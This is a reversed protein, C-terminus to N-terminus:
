GAKKKRILKVEYNELNGILTIYVFKSNDEKYLIEDDSEENKRKRKFLKNAAINGIMKWPVAIVYDMDMATTMKQSGSIEMFGLSSNITMKPITITGKDISIENRLTDFLVRNLNKDEFYNELVKLPAFNEIKGDTLVMKVSLKSDDIKPTLDPHLHITGSIEGNFFGHLNDSVVYDQGFNDFKIMFKDLDLHSIAIEPKFFIKEKNQADLKGSMKITGEATQFSLDKLDIIKKSNTEFQLNLSNLLHHHYNLSEIEISSNLEYLPLDFISFGSDHDIKPVESSDNKSPPNYNIIEDIDLYNSKLTLSNLKSNTHNHWFHQFNLNFDSKGIKGSFNDIIIYEKNIKLKMKFNEFKLPHIKMKGTFNSLDFDISEFHGDNFHINSKGHFLLNDIEEHRYEKPIMNEGRYTLLNEFILKRSNMDFEVIIDKNLEIDFFQNYNRLNGNFHFDSQDLVGKFDIIRFDKDDIIIDAYFDHITHPYHKFKAYFNRVFFEGKPLYKFTRLEQGTANFKLNLKFNDITEDIEEVGQKSALEKINIKISEMNLDCTVPTNKAHLVAPLDSIQGKINLDSEGIKIKLYEMEAKHGNLKAKMNCDSISFNNNLHALQLNEVKLSTYYSENLNNIVKEPADLDIIDHFNVDLIIKGKTGKFDKLNVFNIIFDLKFDANLAIKIEPSEFNKISFDGKFTGIEPRANFKHIVLESSSLNHNNGNTFTGNFEIQDLKKSTIKNDFAGNSCGFDIDIKPIKSNATEGKIKGKFYVKGKNKFQNLKLAIEKPAVDIFLNFNPKNGSCELDVPINKTLGIKGKLNFTSHEFDVVTPEIILEKSLQNLKLHTSLRFHKNELFKKEGKKDITLSFDTDLNIEFHKNSGDIQARVKGLYSSINLNNIKNYKTIKLNKIDISKLKIKFDKEIEKEEKKSKFANLLNITGDKEQILNLNGDNIKISKIQFDGKIIDLLDFGIYCDKIHTIEKEKSAIKGEYINLDELDIAVYPFAEFLSLHSDKLKISGEFDENFHLLLEQVIADQKFYIIGILISILTIPTIILLISLRIWFRRRLLLFPKKKQNQEEVDESDNM